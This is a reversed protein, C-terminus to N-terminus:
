VVILVCQMLLCLSYFSSSDSFSVCNGGSGRSRAISWKTAVTLDLEESINVARSAVGNQKRAM